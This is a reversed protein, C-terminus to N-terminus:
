EHGVCLKANSFTVVGPKLFVFIVPLFSVFIYALKSTDCYIMSNPSLIARKWDALFCVGLKVPFLKDRDSFVSGQTIVLCDSTQPLPVSSEGEVCNSQCHKTQTATWGRVSVAM